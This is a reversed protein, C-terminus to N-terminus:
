ASEGGDQWHAPHNARGVYRAGLPDYDLVVMGPEGVARFRVKKVHIEASRSRKDGEFKRHVSIGCDAKNAWHQSGSIQMLSPAEDSAQFPPKQPHAIFWVHNDNKAAFRKVKSLMSAVYETESMERPRRHEFENYPDLVLGTTKREKVAIQARALAWEITPSDKDARIFVFHDNVWKQARALDGEGMRSYGYFPQGVYAEALKGIHEDPANEFSCVAFSWNLRKALNVMVHDVFQSKGSSPWGTVVSLEGQRIRYHPDLTEYGTSHAPKRQGRYLALVDDRFDDASRLGDLGIQRALGELHGMWDGIQQGPDMEGFARTVIDEGTAILERLLHCEFILRGYDRANIISAAGAALRALYADGGLFKLDDDGVFLTKLTVPTVCKGQGILRAAAEYIKGHTPDAFHEPKLFEGVQDFVKNSMLLSGLFAQEAEYNHPPSRVEQPQPFIPANM